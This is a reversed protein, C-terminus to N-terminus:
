PSGVTEENEANNLDFLYKAVQQPNLKVITKVNPERNCIACSAAKTLVSHLSSFKCSPCYSFDNAVMHLGTQACFPLTNYCSPCELLSEPIAFSCCPCPTLAEEPEPGPKVRALQLFKAKFKDPVKDKYSGGMLTRALQHASKCLGATQAVAIASILIEVAHQPFRNANKAVRLLLRAAPTVKKQQVFSQALLYSHLLLLNRRVEHPVPVRHSILSQHSLVLHDRATRYVGRNQYHRAILLAARASQAHSGMAIYLKLVKRLNQVKGSTKGTIHDHVTQVLKQAEPVEAKVADGVVTIAADIAGAKILTAVAKENQDCLAYYKGVNEFDNQAQYYQAINAYDAKAIRNGMCRVYVEMEKAVKALEFADKVRNATVYFEITEKYMRKKKCYAAVMLAGEATGEERAVALAKDPQNIATGLLLRIVSDVDKAESYAKLADQLKSKEEYARALRVLLQPTSSKAVLPGALELNRTDIYIRAASELEGAAEYLQAAQEMKNAKKLIVACEKLLTKNESAKAAAMGKELEGMHLLVRALGGQCLLKDKDSCDKSDLARQYLQQAKAWDAKGEAEQAYGACIPPISHPELTSALKLAEEWHRLDRRMNLATLRRSSKLFRNEADSFRGELLHIHGALLYRDEVDRIAELAMVKSTDGIQRYCSIAVEVELSSLAKAAIAKWLNPDKCDLSLTFAESVRWLKLLQVAAEKRKNEPLVASKGHILEHSSLPVETLLGSSQQAYVVGDYVLKPVLGSVPTRSVTEVIAGKFSAPTYVMTTLEKCNQSTFAVLVNAGSANDWLLRDTKDALPPIRVTSGDVPNLVYGKGAADVLAVRLGTVNPQVLVLKGEKEPHEYSNISEGAMSLHLVRSGSSYILFRETLHVHQVGGDVKMEVPVKSDLPQFFLRSDVVAALHTKNLCLHSPRGPLTLAAMQVQKGEADPQLEYVTVQTGSAVAAHLPALALLDPDVALNLNNRDENDTANLLALKKIGSQYLLRNAHAASQLPVAALFSEVAGSSLALSLVQGDASYCVATATEAGFSKAESKVEEWNNIDLVRLGDRAISAMKQQGASFAIHQIPHAHLKISKLETLDGSSMKIAALVLSGNDTALLLRSIGIWRYAVIAGHQPALEWSTETGDEHVRLYIAKHDLDASINSGAMGGLGGKGLAFFGMQISRPIAGKLFVLSPPNDLLMGTQDNVTMFGDESGLVLQNKSNWCACVIVKSHKGLTPIKGGTVGDYILLSGKNTGIALQSSTRSWAIVTAVESSTPMDVKTAQQSDTDLLTVHNASQLMIAVKSADKDWELNAVPGALTAAASVEGTRSLVKVKQNAGAVALFQGSMSWKLLVTGPGNEEASLKFLSEMVSVRYQTLWPFTTYLGAPVFWFYNSTAKLVLYDPPPPPNDIRKM